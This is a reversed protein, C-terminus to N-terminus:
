NLTCTTTTVGSTSTTTYSLCKSRAAGKTSKPYVTVEPDGTGFSNSSTCTCTHDKKCSALSAVIVAAMFLVKKM